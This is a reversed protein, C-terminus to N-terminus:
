SQRAPYSQHRLSSICRQCVDLFQLISKGPEIKIFQNRTTNNALMANYDFSRNLRKYEDRSVYYISTSDSIASIRGVSAFTVGVQQPSASSNLYLLGPVPSSGADLVLSKDDSMQMTTANWKWAFGWLDGSGQGLKTIDRSFITRNNSDLINVMVQRIETAKVLLSFNAAASSSVNSPANILPPEPPPVVYKQSYLYYRLTDNDAVRINM